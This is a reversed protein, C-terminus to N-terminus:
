LSTSPPPSGARRERSTASVSCDSTPSASRSASLAFGSLYVADFGAQEILMAELPDACGPAQVLGRQM